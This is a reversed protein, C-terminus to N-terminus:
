DIIYFKVFAFMKSSAILIDVVTIIAVSVFKQLVSVNPHNNSIWFFFLQDVQVYIDVDLIFKAM